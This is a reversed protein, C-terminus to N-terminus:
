LLHNIADEVTRFERPVRNPVALFKNEGLKVVRGFDRPAYSGDYNFVTGNSTNYTYAVERSGHEKVPANPLDLEWKPVSEIGYRPTYEAM